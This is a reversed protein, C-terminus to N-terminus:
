SILRIAYDADGYQFLGELLYQAGYVSWPVAAKTHLFSDIAAQNTAPVLGFALPFFSAHAARHTTGIGDIYSNTSVSWNWFNTNFANYVNVANTAFTAADASHGTLQAVQTMITMCRYYFANLEADYSEWVYSDRDTSPWDIIDGSSSGPTFGQILGDSRARNTLCNAVLKSYYKTMLYTDGTQQYDAWAIFVMHFPWETPWTPNTTLYEFSCRPMTFERDVGYSSMQHIYTDAEYPARERDGDVYIGDFTLWQMSNRCLNWVQNLATSSSSFSAANTNFESVLRQQVVDASTLTGPFNVLQFYRFPLVVGYSSPPSITQGSNSPPRVSYILDGNTLTFTSAGYRVTGPPTSNVALGAALEGFSAQVSTGGFNGNLHVTAYAFADQGFDIFWTGPATNTVLVPAASVFRLPYCNVSNSQPPQYVVSPTTLPNSLQAAMNFQQIGSFDSLNGTSDMTRVRWFYNTNPQLSAGGYPLNISTSNSVLGSDWMDGTGTGALTQSSAVIIQYGTQSDNPFSPNYVWGFKPTPTTIITEEPHELLQCSLDTPAVAAAACPWAGMLMIALFLVVYQFANHVPKRGYLLTDMSVRIKHAM